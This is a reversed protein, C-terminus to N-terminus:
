GLTSSEVFYCSMAGGISTAESIVLGSSTGGGGGGAPQAWTGDARLYNTTGGGLKPLLGHASVTANLTTVDTPAALEDLKITDSWREGVACAV